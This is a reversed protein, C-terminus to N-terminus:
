GGPVLEGVGTIRRGRDDLAVLRMTGRATGGRYAAFWGDKITVWRTGALRAVRPSVRGVMLQGNTYGCAVFADHVADAAVDPSGTIALAVRVFRAYGDRYVEEIRAPTAFPRAVPPVDARDGFSHTADM